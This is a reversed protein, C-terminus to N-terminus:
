QRTNQYEAFSGVPKSHRADHQDNARPYVRQMAFRLEFPEAFTMGGCLQCLCLGDARGGLPTYLQAAVAAIRAPRDLHQRLRRGRNRGGHHRRSDLRHSRCRCLSFDRHAYGSNDRLEEGCQCRSHQGPRSARLDGAHCHGHRARFLRWLRLHRIRLRLARVSFSSGAFGYGQELRAKLWPGLAFLITAITLLWPVARQFAEPGTSILILSGLVGGSVAMASRMPLSHHANKLAPINAAFGVINAPALSVFASANASIPPLGAAIFAPFALFGSGGALANIVGAIIGVAFLFVGTALTMLTKPPNVSKVFKAQHRGAADSVYEMSSMRGQYKGRTRFARRAECHVHIIDGGLQRAMTQAMLMGLSKSQRADFNEPLGVGRDQVVLKLRDGGQMSCSVQVVGKGEPYAYKLANTTLENVILAISIARENAVWMTDGAYEITIESGTVTAALDKCLSSLYTSIEVATTSQARHLQEHLSAVTRIRSAADNLSAKIDSSAAVREQLSLMASIIQLSNKVRHHTERMLMDKMAMADHLQQEAEQRETIDLTTGLLRTPRGGAPTNFYLMRGRLEIWRVSGDLLIIRHKLNLEGGSSPDLLAQVTDFVHSRDEPHIASQWLAYTPTRDAPLDFIQKQRPSWYIRNNEVHWEWIGIGTADVAVRMRKREKELQAARRQLERTFEEAAIRAHVRDTVEVAISLVGEPKKKKSLVPVLTIDWYTDHNAYHIHVDRETLVINEELM